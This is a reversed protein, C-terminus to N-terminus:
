SIAAHSLSALAPIHRVPETLHLSKMWASLGVAEILILHDRATLIRGIPSESPYGYLLPSFRVYCTQFSVDSQRPM